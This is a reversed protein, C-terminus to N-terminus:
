PSGTSEPEMSYHEVFLCVAFNQGSMKRGGSGKSREPLGTNKGMERLPLMIRCAEGSCGSLLWCPLRNGATKWLKNM